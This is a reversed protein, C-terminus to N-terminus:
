QDAGRAERRVQAARQGVTVLSGAAVLGLGGGLVWWPLGCGTALAAVLTVVLRDAREAIGRTARYGLAEARARAYPVIGSAGVAAVGAVAGAFHGHWALWVTLGTLVAADSVRDLTSDLFAGWDSEAGTIRAMTGDLADTTALVGLILAGQWLFGLPFLTLAVATVAVTGAVTVANPPVRRSVLFAAPRSFIREEL